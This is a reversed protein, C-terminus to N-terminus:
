TNRQYWPRMRGGKLDVGDLLLSLAEPSLVLKGNEVEIGKPWSFTGKELRKAMVWLGTGDFHLLKIRNRNKNCFIFLAKDIPNEKLKDVALAHLGNFSKRMDAPEVALFIKLNGTLGFM